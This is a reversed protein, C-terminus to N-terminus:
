FNILQLKVRDTIGDSVVDILRPNKFVRWRSKDDFPAGNQALLLSIVDIYM